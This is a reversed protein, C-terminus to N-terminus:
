VVRVSARGSARTVQEVTGDRPRGAELRGRAASAVSTPVPSALAAVPGPTDTAEPEILRYGVTPASHSAGGAEAPVHRPRHVRVDGGKGATACTWSTASCRKKAALQRCGRQGGTASRWRHPVRGAVDRGRRLGLLSRRHMHHHWIRTIQAPRSGAFLLRGSPERARTSCCDGNELLFTATKNRQPHARARRAPVVLEVISAAIWRHGRGAEPGVGLLARRRGWGSRVGGVAGGRWGRRTIM